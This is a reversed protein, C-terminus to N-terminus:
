VCQFTVLFPLSVKINVKKRTDPTLGIDRIVKAFEKPNIGCSNAVNKKCRKHVNIKCDLVLNFFFTYKFWKWIFKIFGNFWLENCYFYIYIMIVSVHHSTYSLTLIVLVSRRILRVRLTTNSRIIKVQWRSTIRCKRDIYMYIGEIKIENYYYLYRPHNLM